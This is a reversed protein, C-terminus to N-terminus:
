RGLGPMFFGATYAALGAFACLWILMVPIPLRGGHPAALAAESGSTVIANSGHDHRSNM